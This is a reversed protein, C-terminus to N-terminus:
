EEEEPMVFFGACRVPNLFGFFRRSFKIKKRVTALFPNLFGNVYHQENATLTQKAYKKKLYVNMFGTLSTGLQPDVVNHAFQMPTLTGRNMGTMHLYYTAARYAWYPKDGDPKSNRYRTIYYTLILGPMALLLLIFAIAIGAAIWLAQRASVQRPPAAIPPKEKQAATDKRKLYVEDVPTLSPFRKIIETGGEAPGPELKKLAEAYSVATGIDGKHVNRIPVAVSDKYIIAVKMDLNITVPSPLKYEKDHFVM